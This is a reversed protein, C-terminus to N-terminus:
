PATLPHLPTTETKGQFVVTQGPKLPLNGYLANWATTGTCVISALHSFSLETKPVKVLFKSPLSIFQRLTGHRSGGLGNALDKVPGYLTEHDFLAIVKDGKKFDDVQDGIEEVEGALDSCPVLNDKVPPGYKGTVILYDRYNLAVSRIRVLVEQQNPQSIPEKFETLDQVSTRKPLRFVTQTSM